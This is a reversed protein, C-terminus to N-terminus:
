ELMERTIRKVLEVSPQDYPNVHLYKGAYATQLEFFMFLAGLHYADLRPIRLTLNPRHREALARASGAMQAHIVRKFDKGALDGIGMGAYDFGDPFAIHSEFEDVGIFTLLKDNTGELFLQMQSHQDSAGVAVVVSQGCSVPRGSLDREKGLSESWLQAYWDGLRKLRSAYPFIVSTLKDRRQFLHAHAAASLMPANEMSGGANLSADRMERAGHLMKSINYGLLCAPLLGVPSLVSFRGGVNEPVVFRPIGHQDAYANLAGGSPGTVIVMGRDRPVKNSAYWGDVYALAALTELTGGSKSIVLTLTRRAELNRMSRLVSSPDTNDLVRLEPTGPARQYSELAEHAARLGLSSGGIGLVLLADFTGRRKEAFARLSEFVASQDPLELFGLEGREWEERLAQTFKEGRSLLEDLEDSRVGHERGVVDALVNRHDLSIPSQHSESM